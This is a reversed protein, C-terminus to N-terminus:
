EEIAIFTYKVREKTIEASKLCYKQGCIVANTGPELLIGPNGYTIVVEEIRETERDRANKVEYLTGFKYEENM